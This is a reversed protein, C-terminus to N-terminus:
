GGVIVPHQSLGLPHPESLVFANHPPVQTLPLRRVRSQGEVTHPQMGLQSCIYNWQQAIKRNTEIEDEITKLSHSVTSADKEILNAIVSNTLGLFRSLALCVFRRALCVDPRRGRAQIAGVGLGCVKAVREMVESPAGMGFNSAVPAPGHKLALETVDSMDLGQKFSLRSIVNIFLSHVKRATDAPIAMIRELIVLDIPAEALSHQSLLHRWLTEKFSRDPVPMEFSLGSHLRSFLAPEILEQLLLPARQSSVAINAGRDILRGVTILLEQQTGPKGQLEDIGELVFLDTESRYKRVFNLQTNTEMSRRWEHFFTMVDVFVMRKDLGILTHLQKLLWTKGSGSAGHVWLCQSRAGNNVNFAWRKLLEIPEAFMPSSVLVPPTARRQKEAELPSPADPRRTTLPLPMQLHAQRAVATDAKVRRIQVSLINRGLADELTGLLPQIGNAQFTTPVSLIYGEPTEELQAQSLYRECVQSLDPRVSLLARLWEPSKAESATGITGAVPGPANM